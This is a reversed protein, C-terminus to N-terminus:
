LADDTPAAAVLSAVTTSKSAAESYLHQLLHNRLERGNRCRVVAGDVALTINGTEESVIVSLADTEETIGLGARHRTGYATSLSPNQTLPLFCTAALIRKERIIVAGDHTPSDPMFLNILLDHSVLADLAIGSELYSQLREQRELVILAGVRREAMTTAAVVIDDVVNKELSQTVRSLLLPTRGISALARRIEQQFLVLIAVPLFQLGFRLTAELATLEFIRALLYVGVFLGLSLLVRAARTGYVLRLVNYLVLYLILAVLTVDAVDSPTDLLPRLGDLSLRELTTM